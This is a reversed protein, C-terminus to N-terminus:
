KPKPIEGKSLCTQAYWDDWLLFTLEKTINAFHPHASVNRWSLSRPYQYKEATLMKRGSSRELPRTYSFYVRMAIDSSVLALYARLTNKPPITAQTPPKKIRLVESPIEVSDVRVANGVNNVM